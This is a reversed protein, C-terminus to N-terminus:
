FVIKRYHTGANKRYAKLVDKASPKHKWCDVIHSLNGWGIHWHILKQDEFGHQLNRRDHRFLMISLAQDLIDFSLVIALFPCQNQDEQLLIWDGTEVESFNHRYKVTEM